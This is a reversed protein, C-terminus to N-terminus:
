KLMVEYDQYIQAGLDRLTQCKEAEEDQNIVCVGLVKMRGASAQRIVDAYHVAGFGSVGILCVNIM